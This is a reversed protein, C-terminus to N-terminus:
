GPHRDPFQANRTKQKEAENSIHHGPDDTGPHFSLSRIRSQVKKSTKRKLASVDRDVLNGPGVGYHYASRGPEPPCFHSGIFM